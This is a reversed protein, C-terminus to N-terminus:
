LDPATAAGAAEDKKRAEYAVQLAREFAEGEEYFNKQHMIGMSMERALLENGYTPAIAAKITLGCGASWRQSQAFSANISLNCNGWDRSSKPMPRGLLDYIWVLNTIGRRDKETVHPAGYKGSLSQVLTDIAPSEGEPFSNRRWVAGAKEEGPMGNFAVIIQQTINKVPKFKYGGDDCTKSSMSGMDRAIDQGSCLGGDSARIIQRTPVDYNQKITWKDAVNIIPVDDRCELLWSVDDFSMGSRIGVIDDVPAGEPRVGTTVKAPCKRSLEKAPAKEGQAVEASNGGIAGSSAANDDGSDGCGTILLATVLGGLVFRIGNARM